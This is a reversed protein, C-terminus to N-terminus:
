SARQRRVVDRVTTRPLGLIRAAASVNGQTREFARAIETANPRRSQGGREAVADLLHRAGIPGGEGALMAAHALLNRLERVNGPFAQGELFRLAARDISAGRFGAADLLVRSLRPLDARRERLPPLRLVCAALREYLDHRFRGSAVRAELPECTAAILRVDIESLQEAGLARIGGDEVARLLKAQVDLGLAGVEDLFL